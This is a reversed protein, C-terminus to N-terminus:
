GLNLSDIPISRQPRQYVVILINLTLFSSAAIIILAEEQLSCCSSSFPCGTLGRGCLVFLLVL